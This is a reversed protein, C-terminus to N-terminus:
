RGKCRADVVKNDEEQEEWYVHFNRSIELRKTGRREGLSGSVSKLRRIM